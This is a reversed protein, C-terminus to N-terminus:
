LGAKQKLDSIYKLNERWFGSYLTKQLWMKADFFCGNELSILSEMMHALCEESQDKIAEFDKLKVFKEYSSDPEKTFGERPTAIGKDVYYIKVESM